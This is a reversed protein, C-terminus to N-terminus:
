VGPGVGMQELEALVEEMAIKKLRRLKRKMFKRPPTGERAIKARVLFAVRQNEEDDTIGLKRAVWLRIPDEPPWHPRTGREVFAAHPADVIIDGGDDVREYRVSQRLGGSDVAKVKEISDVVESVGRAAASRLGRIVAGELRQDLGRIFRAFESFRLQRAM